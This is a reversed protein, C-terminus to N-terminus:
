KMKQIFIKYETTKFLACVHFIFDQNDAVNKVLKTMNRNKNRFYMQISLGESQLKIFNISHLLHYPMLSPLGM